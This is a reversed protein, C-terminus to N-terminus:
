PQSQRKKRWMEMLGSMADDYERDSMGRDSDSASTVPDDAAPRARPAKLAQAVKRKEPDLLVINAADGVPPAGYVENVARYSAVQDLKETDKKMEALAGKAAKGRRAAEALGEADNRYTPEPDAVCLFELTDAAYVLLRSQDGLMPRKLLVRYGAGGRTQLEDAYYLVGGVTFKGGDGLIRTGKKKDIPKCFYPVLEEKTMTQSKWGAALHERFADNPSKGKLTLSRRQEKNNYFEVAVALQEQFQAFPIPSIRRGMRECKSNMRDSGIHGPMDALIRELIAFVHEIAKSQPQHAQAHTVGPRVGDDCYLTVKMKGLPEFLESWSKYESGNDAYIATPVGWNPDVAMVAFSELVHSTKLGEGKELLFATVFLRGTARDVWAVVRATAESGDERLVLTDSPHVDASVMEMPKLHSWGRRIRGRQTANARGADREAIAVAQYKRLDSRRILALALTCAKRLEADSVADPMAAAADKCRKVLWGMVKARVQTWPQKPGGSRWENKIRQLAEDAIKAKEGAAIGMREACADWDRSLAVRPKQQDSRAKRAAGAVGENQYRKFLQRWRSVSLGLRAAEAAIM